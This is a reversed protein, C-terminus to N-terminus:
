ERFLVYLLGLLVFLLGFMIALAYLTDALPVEANRAQAKGQITKNFKAQTTNHHSGTKRRRDDMPLEKMPKNRQNSFAANDHKGM